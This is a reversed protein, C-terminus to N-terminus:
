VHMVGVTYNSGKLWGIILLDFDKRRIANYINLLLFSITEKNIYHNYKILKDKGVISEFIGCNFESIIEDIVYDEVLNENVIFMFLVEMYCRNFEIDDSLRNIFMSVDHLNVNVKVVDTEDIIGLVENIYINTPYYSIKFNSSMYATIEGYM